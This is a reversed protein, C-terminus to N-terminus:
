GEDEMEGLAVWAHRPRGRGTPGIGMDAYEITGEGRLSDLVAKRQRPELGAYVRCYKSLERETRGRTGAKEIVELVAGRWQSFQSGHMHRRASDVTQATYFRVYDVAWQANEASVSPTAPRESVALLMALRMAKERSRGELEEMKERELEDMRALLEAEYDGFVRWAGDSIPVDHVSPVIEAGVDLGTLNGERPARVEACWDLLSQPVALPEARRSLQRGITSEVVLLRNLLGGEISSEDLGDWFTRPTSMGLLTLSPREVVKHSDKEDKKGITSYGQSRMTGSTLGWAELLMTVSSKKHFNGAAKSNRMMEGIEDIIALHAPQHYLASFVGSDSTYGRPGILQSLGAESLVRECIKRAHEKGSASKGVNVFYMGPWNDNESRYRRGLVASGFALAAQVAFQPQPKPATRNCLDVFTGLAGPLRLLHTPTDSAIFDPRPTAKNKRAKANAVLASIDVLSVPAPRQSDLGLIEAAAKVADFMEGGHDLQCFVSFADHAHGDNLPDSAHHSYCHTGDEFIAVGPLRSESTPSLYRKGVRKYGHAELMARVDHAENFQGIVNSHPGEKRTRPRPPPAAEAWPCMAMFQAKFSDWAKWVHCLQAPLMPISEMAWPETGERWRYPNHTDPHITPPLVDQVPGARLEFITVPKDAGPPKPWVLKHMKAPVDEPMRFIAKDRGDKGIIRPAGEFLQAVDVGLEGMCLRFYDLHDVDIACTGSAAHVLGLGNDPRSQTVALAREETTIILAPSNWGDDTPGKTGRPISCLGWGLRIYALAHDAITAPANAHAPTM